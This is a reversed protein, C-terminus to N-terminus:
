MSSDQLRDEAPQGVEIGLVGGASIDGARDFAVWRAREDLMFFTAVSLIALALFLFRRLPLKM